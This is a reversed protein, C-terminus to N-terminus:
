DSGQKQMKQRKQQQELADLIKQIKAQMTKDIVDVKSKYHNRKALSKAFDKWFARGKKKPSDRVESMADQLKQQYEERKLLFAERKEILGSLSSLEKTQQALAKKDSLLSKETEHFSNIYSTLATNCNAKAKLAEKQRQEMDAIEISLRANQVVLLACCLVLVAFAAYRVSKGYQLAASRAREFFSSGSHGGPFVSGRSSQSSFRSMPDPPDPVEVRFESSNNITANKPTMRDDPGIGRVVESEITDAMAQKLLNDSDPPPTANTETPELVEALSSAVVEAPIASCEITDAVAVDAANPDARETDAVENRGQVAYERSSGRAIEDPDLAEAPNPMEEQGLGDLEALVEDPTLMEAPVQLDDPLTTDAVDPGDIAPQSSSVAREGDAQREKHPLIATATEETDREEEIMDLLEGRSDPDKDKM